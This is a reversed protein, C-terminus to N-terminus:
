KPPLFDKRSRVPLIIWGTQHWLNQVAQSKVASFVIALSVSINERM